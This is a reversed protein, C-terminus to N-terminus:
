LNFSAGLSFTFQNNLSDYGSINQDYKAIPFGTEGFVGFGNTFFYRFGAHGGFNRLGLSLGPYVDMNAPLGIVNGLNASFRAKLDVRDVFDPKEELNPYGDIVPDYNPNNLYFEAESYRRTKVDLLYSTVLGVSFNEGLGFDLSASIGTADSQVLAGVQFKKDGKGRYAQANVTIAALVVALTLWKKM